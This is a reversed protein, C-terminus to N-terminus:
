LNQRLTLKQMLCVQKQGFFDGWCSIKKDRRLLAYIRINRYNAFFCAGKVCHKMCFDTLNADKPLYFQMKLLITFFIIHFTTTEHWFQWRKASSSKFCLIRLIPKRKTGFSKLWPSQLFVPLTKGPFCSSILVPALPSLAILFAGESWKVPSGKGQCQFIDGSFSGGGECINCGLKVPTLVAWPQVM